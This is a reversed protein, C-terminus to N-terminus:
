RAPATTFRKLVRHVCLDVNVDGLGALGVPAAAGAAASGAMVM